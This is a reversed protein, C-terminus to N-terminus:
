RQWSTVDAPVEIGTLLDGAPAPPGPTIRLPLVGAWVPYTLDEDDDIPDGTRIKASAEDIPIELVLTGRIERDSMPRLSARRGPILHDTFRDLARAREDLDDIPTARGFLVVSRYNLSHHFASRALVLGDLLTVTLCLDGGNKAGRLLRTAPSGHILVRDGDRAYLMPIVVPRGDAAVLGVHAITGEDLIADIVSRDYNARDDRRVRTAGSPPALDKTGTRVVSQEM